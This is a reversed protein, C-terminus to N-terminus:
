RLYITLLYSLEAFLLIHTLLEIINREKVGRKDISANWFLM